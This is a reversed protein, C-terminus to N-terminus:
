TTYFSHVTFFMQHLVFDYCAMNSNINLNNYLCQLLILRATKGKQCLFIATVIYTLIIFGNNVKLDESAGKLKKRKKKTLVSDKVPFGRIM